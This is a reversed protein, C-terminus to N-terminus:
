LALRLSFSEDRELSRGDVRRWRSPGFPSTNPMARMAPMMAALFAALQNRQTM